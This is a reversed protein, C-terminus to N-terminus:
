KSQRDDYKFLIGVPQPIKSIAFGPSDLKVVDDDAVLNVYNGLTFLYNELTLRTTNKNATDVKRGDQFKVLADSYATIAEQLM